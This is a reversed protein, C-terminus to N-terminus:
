APAFARGRHHGALVAGLGAAAWTGLVILAGGVHAGNLYVENRVATLAAGPPMLQSVARFFAPELQYGVAGGSSTIGILLLTLGGAAAGIRGVLRGLGHVALTVAAILLGIVGAVGWFDGTLAGVITDASLAVAIGGFAAVLALAVLRASLAHAGGVLTLLMALVMSAITTSVVTAFPSIGRADHPPLPAVDEISAQPSVTKLAMGAQQAAVFGSGSAVLIRGDAYVGHVEDQTLAARAARESPYAVAYFRQPDLTARAEKLAAPPGVIAVKLEAPQPNHFAATFVAPFVLMLALGVAVFPAAAFHRKFTM